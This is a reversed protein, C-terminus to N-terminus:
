AELACRSCVPPALSVWHCGGDCAVGETCGCGTCQIAANDRVDAEQAARREDPTPAWAQGTSRCPPVDQAPEWSAQALQWLPSGPAALVEQHLWADFLVEVDTTIRTTPEMEVLEAEFAATDETEAVAIRLVFVTCPTGHATTGRWVRCRAGDLSLLQDTSEMLIEM